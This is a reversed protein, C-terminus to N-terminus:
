ECASGMIEVRGDPFGIIVRGSLHLFLGTEVVGPLNHLLQDLEEVKKGSLRMDLDVIWHGGDTVFPAGEETLRLNGPCGLDLIRQRTADAGFPIIEVPLPFSGLAMVRKTADAVVIMERSISAIIKEWLLAGGGGKILRRQPDIEDAGDIALDLQTVGSLDTLPIKLQKALGLTTRSTPACVVQLGEQVKRGLIRVFEEATSGTGLGIIMGDEVFEIARHAAARKAAGTDLTM